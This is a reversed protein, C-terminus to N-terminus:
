QVRLSKRTFSKIMDINKLHGQVDRVTVLQQDVLHWLILALDISDRFQLSNINPTISTVYTQAIHDAHAAALSPLPVDERDMLWSNLLSVIAETVQAGVGTALM